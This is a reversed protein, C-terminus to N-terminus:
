ILLEAIEILFDTLLKHEEVETLDSVVTISPSTPNELNSPESAETQTSVDSNLYILNDPLTEIPTNCNYPSISSLPYNLKDYNMREIDEAEIKKLIALQEEVILLESKQEQLCKLLLSEIDSNSTQVGADSFNTNSAQVGISEVSPNM